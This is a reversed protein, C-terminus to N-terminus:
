LKSIEKELSKVKNIAEINKINYETIENTARNLHTELSNVTNTLFTIELIYIYKKRAYSFFHIIYTILM